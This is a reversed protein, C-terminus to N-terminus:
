RRRLRGMLRRWASQLDDATGPEVGLAELETRSCALVVEDAHRVVVYGGTTRWPGFWRLQRRALVLPGAFGVADCEEPRLRRVPLLRESPRLSIGRLGEPRRTAVAAHDCV